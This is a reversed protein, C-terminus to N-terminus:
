GAEVVSSDIYDSDNENFSEAMSGNGNSSSSFTCTVTKSKPRGHIRVRHSYVGRFGWMGSRLTKDKTFSGNVAPVGHIGGQKRHVSPCVVPGTWSGAATNTNPSEKKSAIDRTAAVVQRECSKTLRTVSMTSQCSRQGRNRRRGRLSIRIDNFASQFPHHGWGWATRWRLLVDFIMYSIRIGELKPTLMHDYDTDSPFPCFFFLCFTTHLPDANRNTVWRRLLLGSVSASLSDPPSINIICFLFKNNSKPIFQRFTFDVKGSLDAALWVGLKTEFGKITGKPGQQSGGDRDIRSYM